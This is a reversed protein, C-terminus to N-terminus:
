DLKPNIFKRIIKACEEKKILFFFHDGDIEVFKSAPANSLRKKVKEIPFRKDNKGNIMLINLNKKLNAVTSLSPASAISVYGKFFNPNNNYIKFGTPGGASIAFLYPKKISVDFRKQIENIMDKLYKM